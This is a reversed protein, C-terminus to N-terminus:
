VETLKKMRRREAWSLRHSGYAPLKVPNGRLRAAIRTVASAAECDLDMFRRNTLLARYIHVDEPVEGLLELHLEEAIDAAPQMEGARILMPNLRNVILKPTAVKRERLVHCLRRADRISVEDPTCVAIAVDPKCTTLIRLNRELGAPCDILVYGFTAKLERIVRVFDKAELDKLIYRASHDIAKGTESEVNLDSLRLTGGFKATIQDKKPYVELLWRIAAKLEESSLHGNKGTNVYDLFKPDCVFAKVPASMAVWLAEDLTLADKLDQGNEIVLQYAKGQKVFKM